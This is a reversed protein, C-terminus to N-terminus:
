DKILSNPKKVSKKGIDQKKNAKEMVMLRNQEQLNDIRSIYEKIEERHKAHIDNLEQQHAKDAMLLAKEKELEAQEMQKKNEKILNDIEGSLRKNEEKILRLNNLQETADAAVAKLEEIEMKKENCSDILAKNLSDKDSLTAAYDKNQKEITRELMYSKNFLENNEEKVDKLSIESTEMLVTLEKVKSQLDVITRDKSDLLREFEGRIRTEADQNLQLSMLFLEGIKNLYSQFSEIEIKREILTAKSKETEYLNVLAALCQGQNGFEENAIAKFKEFTDDDARFSKVKLEANDM